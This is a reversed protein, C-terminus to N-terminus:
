FGFRRPAGAQLNPTYLRSPSFIPAIRSGKGTQGTETIENKGARSM